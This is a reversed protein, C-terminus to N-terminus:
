SKLRSDLLITVPGDNVLAVSGALTVRGAVPWVASILGGGVEVFWVGVAAGISRRLLTRRSVGSTPRGRLATIARVTIPDRDDPRALPGGASM